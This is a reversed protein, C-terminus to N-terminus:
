TPRDMAFRDSTRALWSSRDTAPASTRLRDTRWSSDPLCHLLDDFRLKDQPWAM